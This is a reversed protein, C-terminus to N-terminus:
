AKHKTTWTQFPLQQTQLIRSMNTETVDLKFGSSLITEVENSVDDAFIGLDM